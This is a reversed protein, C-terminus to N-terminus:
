YPELVCTTTENSAAECAKIAKKKTNRIPYHEVDVTGNTTCTCMYDKSCSVLFLGGVLVVLFKKKM